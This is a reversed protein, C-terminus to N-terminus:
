TLHIICGNSDFKVGINVLGDAEQSGLSYIEWDGLATYFRFMANGAVHNIIGNYIGDGNDDTLVVDGNTIDWNNPTGVVYITNQANTGSTACLFLTLAVWLTKIFTKM